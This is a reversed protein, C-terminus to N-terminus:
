QKLAQVFKIFEAINKVLMQELKKDKLSGDELFTEYANALSFMAPFVHAQCCCQLVAATHLLGRNGGVLSPSASCLMIPYKLWPMPKARSVWDILNKLTGPTSFNYEPSSIILGDAQKLKAVFNQVTEPLGSKEEADGNYLAALFNAFDLIEIETKQQVSLKGILNILKKNCSDQRVSAAMLLIKMM